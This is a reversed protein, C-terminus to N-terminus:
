YIYTSLIFLSHIYYVLFGDGELGSIVHAEVLIVSIITRNLTKQTDTNVHTQKRM